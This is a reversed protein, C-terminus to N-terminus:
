SKRKKKIKPFEFTCSMIAGIVMLWSTFVCLLIGIILFTRPNEFNKYQRLRKEGLLSIIVGALWMIALILEKM